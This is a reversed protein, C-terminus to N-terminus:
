SLLSPVSDPVPSGGEYKAEYFLGKDITCELDMTQGPRELVTWKEGDSKKKSNIISENHFFKLYVLTTFFLKVCELNTTIM